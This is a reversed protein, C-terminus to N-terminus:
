LNVAIVEAYLTGAENRQIYPASLGNLPLLAFKGTGSLKGAIDAGAAAYTWLADVAVANRVLVHGTATAPPLSATWARSNGTADFEIPLLGAGLALTSTYTQNFGITSGSISANMVLTATVSGTNPLTSRNATLTGSVGEIAIVGVKCSATDAKSYYAVSTETYFVAFEGALLKAIAKTGGADVYLTVFNTADKNHVIVLADDGTVDGRSLAEASTGVDQVSSLYNNGGYTLPGDLKIGVAGSATRAGFALSFSIENAM